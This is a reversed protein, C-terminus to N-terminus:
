EEHNIQMSQMKESIEMLKQFLERNEREDTTAMLKQNIVKLQETLAIFEPPTDPQYKYVRNGKEDLEVYVWKHAKSSYNWRDIEHKRL